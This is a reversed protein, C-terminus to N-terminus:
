VVSLGGCAYVPMFWANNCRGVKCSAARGEHPVLLSVLEGEETLAHARYPRLADFAAAVMLTGNLGQLACM